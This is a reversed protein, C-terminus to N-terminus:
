LFAKEARRGYLHCRHGKHHMAEPSANWQLYKLFLYFTCGLILLSYVLRRLLPRRARRSVVVQGESEVQDKFIDHDDSKDQKFQAM